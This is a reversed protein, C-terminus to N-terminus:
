KHKGMYNLQCTHAVTSLWKNLPIKPIKKKGWALRLCCDELDRVAGEV